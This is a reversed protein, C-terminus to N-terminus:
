FVPSLLYGMKRLEDFINNNPYMVSNLNVTVIINGTKFAKDLRETLLRIRNEFGSVAAPKLNLYSSKNYLKELEHLNEKLYLAAKIQVDQKIQDENDIINKIESIYYATGSKKSINFLEEFRTLGKTPYAHQEAYALFIQQTLNVNNCEPTIRRALWNYIVAPHYHNIKKEDYTDGLKLKTKLYYKAPLINRLSEDSNEIKLIKEMVENTTQDTETYYTDLKDALKTMKGLLSPSTECLDAMTFAIYSSGNIGNKSVKWLLSNSKGDFKQANTQNYLGILALVMISTIKVM